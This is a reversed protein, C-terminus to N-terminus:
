DQDSRLSYEKREGDENVLIFGVRLAIKESAQFMEEGIEKIVSVKIEDQDRFLHPIIVEKLPKILHGKKRYKPLVVWHLDGGMNYVAAVYKGNQNKILYFRYLRGSHRQYTLNPDNISTHITFDVNGSLPELLFENEQKGNMDKIVSIITQETM